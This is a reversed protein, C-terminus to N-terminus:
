HNTHTAINYCCFKILMKEVVSFFIEESEQSSEFMRIWPSSVVSDSEFFRVGM